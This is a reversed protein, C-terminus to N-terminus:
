IELSLFTNRQSNIRQTVWVWGSNLLEVEVEVEVVNLTSRSMNFGNM